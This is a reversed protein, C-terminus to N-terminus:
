QLYGLARLEELQEESLLEQVTAGPKGARKGVTRGAWTQLVARLRESRDGHEPALDTSETPDAALDFLAVRKEIADYILKTDGIQMSKLDIPTVRGPQHVQPNSTEAFVPRPETRFPERLPLAVGEIGDPAPLGAHELITPMVDVLGVPDNVVGPRGDPLRFILPVHLLERHLTRTHGIWGREMFEEGHDATVVVLSDDFLGLSDIEDLLRGVHHDTFRIESDYLARLFDVDGPTFRFRDEWLRQIPVGSELPGDYEPAFDFEPHLIYNYHPDFYHVFLFFRENRHDRLFRIALDTVQPSSIESREVCASEDYSEFGRGFGLQRTLMSVSIIGHTRYGEDKLVEALTPFRDSIPRPQDFNGLASPYQSTFLSGVSPTTWPAAAYAKRFVVSEQALRDLNPSTPRSYGGFSLHDARLTDVVILVVNPREAEDPPVAAGGCAAALLVCSAVLGGKRREDRSM